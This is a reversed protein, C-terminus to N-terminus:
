TTEKIEFLNNRTELIRIGELEPWSGPFTSRWKKRLRTRIALALNESTPATAAFEPVDANLNRHDLPRLVEQRVLRDLAEVDAARGTVPDVQGRVSVEVIYDHGHGYPNNCKGYIERNQEPTLADTHLRHSAALRYKRTLRIV